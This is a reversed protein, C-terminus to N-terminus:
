VMNTGGPNISRAVEEILGIDGQAKSDNPALFTVASCLAFKQWAPVSALTPTFRKEALTGAAMDIVLFGVASLLGRCLPNLQMVSSLQLSTSVAADEGALAASGSGSTNEDQLLPKYPSHRPLPTQCLWLGDCYGKVSDVLLTVGTMLALKTYYSVGTLEGNAELAILVIQLALQASIARWKTTAVDRPLFQHYDGFKPASIALCERIVDDRSLFQHCKESHSSKSGADDEKADSSVNIYEAHMLTADEMPINNLAAVFCGLLTEVFAHYNPAAGGQGQCKKRDLGKRGMIYMPGLGMGNFLATGAAAYYFAPFFVVTQAVTLSKGGFESAYIQNSSGTSLMGLVYSFMSFLTYSSRYDPYQKMYSDNWHKNNTYLQRLLQHPGDLAFLGFIWNVGITILIFPLSIASDAFTLSFIPFMSNLIAGLIVCKFFFDLAQCCQSPSEETTCYDPNNKCTHYIKYCSKLLARVDNPDKLALIFSQLLERAEAKARAEEPSGEDAATSAGASGEANSTSTLEDYLEPIWRNFFITLVTKMRAHYATLSQRQMSWQYWQKVPESLQDKGYSACFVDVTGALYRNIWNGMEDAPAVHLKGIAYWLAIKILRELRGFVEDYWSGEEVQQKASDFIAIYMFVSGFVILAKIALSTGLSVYKLLQLRWDTESTSQNMEHQINLIKKCGSWLLPNAKGDFYVNLVFNVFGAFFPFVWHDLIHRDDYGDPVVSGSPSLDTGHSKAAFIISVLLNSAISLAWLGYSCAKVCPGGPFYPHRELNYSKLFSNEYPSQPLVDVDSRANM